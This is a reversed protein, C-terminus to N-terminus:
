EIVYSINRWVSLFSDLTMKIKVNKVNPDNIYIFVSDNNREFGTVVILHGNTTYSGVENSNQTVYNVKGKISAAMPGITQLEYLFENTSVYRKVYAVENFSSMGVCNYVWNGYINNGYDKVIKAIYRHELNDLHSFNHGKFKLLMTSSTASCIINGITPVDHQYLAPVDYYVKDNLLSSSITYKPTDLNLALTIRSLIPSIDNTSKRKIIVKYSFGSAKKNNIVIIEDDSLKILSNSQAICKNILGQGWEGYSIYDSWTNDVKLRVFLECTGNLSSTSCWTAVADTFYDSDFNESIFTGSICNEKLQLRGFNDIYLNELSGNSFDSLMRFHKQNMIITNFEHTMIEGGLSINLTLTISKIDQGTFLLKGFNTLISNDSSTWTGEIDDNFKTPINISSHIITPIKISDIITNFITTNDAKSIIVTFSKQISIDDIIMSVVLTVQKDELGKHIIGNNSLHALDSSVWVLNYTYTGDNYSVPLDINEDYKSQLKLNNLYTYMASTDFAEIKIEFPKKYVVKNYKLSCTLTVYRDIESRRITGDYSMINTDSSKWSISYDKNNYKVSKPLSINDSVLSPIKVCNLIKASIQEDDLETIGVVYEKSYAVDDLYFHVDITVETYEDQRIIHGCNTMVTQNHSNWIAYITKDKYTYSGYLQLDESTFEPIEITSVFECLLQFNKERRASNCGTLVFTFCILLCIIVYKIKKLM